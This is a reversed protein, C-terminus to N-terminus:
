RSTTESPTGSFSFIASCHFTYALSYIPTNQVSRSIGDLVDHCTFISSSAAQDEVGVWSSNELNKWPQAEAAVSVFEAADWGNRALM